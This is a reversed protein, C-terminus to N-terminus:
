LLSVFHMHKAQRKGTAGRCAYQVMNVLNMNLKIYNLNHLQSIHIIYIFICRYKTTFNVLVYSMIEFMCM